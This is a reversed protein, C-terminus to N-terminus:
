AQAARARAIIDEVVDSKADAYGQVSDWRRTALERKTAEYADREDANERLRDRFLLMREAEPSGDAFVHLNVRPDEARFLRHQHWEPERIHLLLGIGELAPAYAAEDGPDPVLLLIDIVPKASLGPVSTSGCHEVLTATGGLVALIDVELAAYVDAWRPDPDVLEVQGTFPARPRVHDPAPGDTSKM